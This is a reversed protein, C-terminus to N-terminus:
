SIYLYQTKKGVIDTSDNNDQSDNFTVKLVDSFEYHLGQETKDCFQTDFTDPSDYDFGAACFKHKIKGVFDNYNTTNLCDNIDTMTIIKDSAIDYSTGGGIKDGLCSRAKRVSKFFLDMIVDLAIGMRGSNSKWNEKQKMLIDFTHLILIHRNSICDELKQIKNNHTNKKNITYQDDEQLVEIKQPSKYKEYINDSTLQFTTKKPTKKVSDNNKDDM